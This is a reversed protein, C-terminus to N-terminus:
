EFFGREMINENLRLRWSEMLLVQSVTEYPKNADRLNKLWSTPNQLESLYYPGSNESSAGGGGAVYATTDGQTANTIFVRSTSKIQRLKYKNRDFAVEAWKLDGVRRASLSIYSGTGDKTDKIEGQEGLSADFSMDPSDVGLNWNAAARGSFQPTTLVLEQFVAWVAKRYHGLEVGEVKRGIADIAQNFNFLNKVLKAM